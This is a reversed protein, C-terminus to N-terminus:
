LEENSSNKKSTFFYLLLFLSGSSILMISKTLLSFNLDYYYQSIFYVLAIVGIAMGTRYNVMFSLLLILIAGSIAPSFVTPLLILGSAILIMAKTRVDGISLINLIKTVLYLVVAFMVVSSLWVLNESVPIFGKKGLVILGFLLSFILGIRFPGYLESFRNNMSIAKAENLFLCTVLMTCITNYLHILDYHNNSLMLTIISGSVALVSLFSLIFGRTVLIIITGVLIYLLPILDLDLDLAGIGWGALALGSAYMTVSFTDIILRDYFRDLLIAVVIFVIGFVLLGGGSDYLGAVICFAIFSITALFGGFITLVKIALGAQNEEHEVISKEMAKEDIVVESDDRTLAAVISKLKELREM